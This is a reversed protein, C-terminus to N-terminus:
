LDMMVLDLDWSLWWHPHLLIGYVVCTSVEALCYSHFVHKCSIIAINFCHCGQKCWTCPKDHFYMDLDLIDSSSPHLLPKPCFKIGGVLKMDEIQRGVPAVERDLRSLEEHAELVVDKLKAIHM